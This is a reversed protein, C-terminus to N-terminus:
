SQHVTKLRNKYAWALQLIELARKPGYKRVTQIVREDKPDFGLARILAIDQQSATDHSLAM